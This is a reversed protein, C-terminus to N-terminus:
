ILPTLHTTYLHTTDSPHHLLYHSILPTLHTTHSSHHSILTTLHTAHSSHHLILPTLHTTFYPHHLIPPALHATFYPHHLIPQTLHTSYSSSTLPPQLITTYSSTPRRRRLRASAPPPQPQPAAPASRFVLVGCLSTPFFQAEVFDQWSTQVDLSVDHLGALNLQSRLVLAELSLTLIGFRLMRELSRGAESASGCTWLDQWSILARRFGVDHGFYQAQWLIQVDFYVQESRKGRSRFTSKPDGFCTSVRAGAM